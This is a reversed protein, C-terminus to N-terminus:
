FRFNPGIAVSPINHGLPGLNNWEIDVGVNFTTSGAPAYKLFAGAREGWYEKSGEVVGASVTIGALFNDGTLSTHNQIWKSIQPFNREYRGGIFSSSSILATEGFADNPTFNVLADTEAGALTSTGGPLTIPTLVFSISTASFASPAPAPTQGFALSSLIALTLAIKLKV